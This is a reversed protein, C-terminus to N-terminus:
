KKLIRSLVELLSSKTYPKAVIGCFGYQAYNAMVPDNAYGSSVMCKAKPDLKLINKVAEKGGMGGPVTLDMIVIDFPAGAEMAQKYMRVAQSGEDATEVLYGNRTLM